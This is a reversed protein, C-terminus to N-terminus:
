IKIGVISKITILDDYAKFNLITDSKKTVFLGIAYNHGGDGGRTINIGQEVASKLVLAVRYFGQKDMNLNFKLQISLIKYNSINSNLIVDM